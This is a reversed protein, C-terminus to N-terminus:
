RCTDQLSFCMVENISFQSPKTITIRKNLTIPSKWITQETWFGTLALGLRVVCLCTHEERRQMRCRRHHKIKKVTESITHTITQEHKSGNIWVGMFLDEIRPYCRRPPTSDPIYIDTHGEWFDYERWRVLREYLISVLNIGAGQASYVHEEINKKEFNESRKVKIKWISIFHKKKTFFIQLFSIQLFSLSIFHKMDSIM